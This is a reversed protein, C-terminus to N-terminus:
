STPRGAIQGDIERLLRVTPSSLWIRAYLTSDYWRWASTGVVAATKGPAFV